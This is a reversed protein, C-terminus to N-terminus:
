ERMEELTQKIFEVEKERQPKGCFYQGECDCEDNQLWNEMWRLGIKCAERLKATQKLHAMRCLDITENRVDIERYECCSNFGSFGGKPAVAKEPWGKVSLYATAVACLIEIPDCHRDAIWEQASDDGMVEVAKRIEEISPRPM